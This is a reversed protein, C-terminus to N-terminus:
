TPAFITVSNANRIAAVGRTRIVGNVFRSFESMGALTDICNRQQASADPAAVGGVAVALASLVALRLTSSRITM